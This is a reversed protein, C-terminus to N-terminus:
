PYKLQSQVYSSDEKFILIDEPRLSMWVQKRFVPASTMAAGKIWVKFKDNPVRVQAHFMGM